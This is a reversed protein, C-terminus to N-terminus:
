LEYKLILGFPEFSIKFWCSIFSHNWYEVIVYLILWNNFWNVDDDCQMQDFLEYDNGEKKNSRWEGFIQHIGESRNANRSSSESQSCLRRFFFQNENV